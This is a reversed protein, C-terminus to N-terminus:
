LWLKISKDSSGSIIIRDDNFGKLNILCNVYDQHGYLIVDNNNNIKSKKDFNCICISKDLSASAITTLNKDWKMQVLSTVTKSHVDISRICEKMELEWLKITNDRSGSALICKDDFKTKLQILSYVCDTHGFLSKICDSTELNWIYIIKDHGGSAITTQNKEWKIHVICSVIDEHKKFINIVTEEEINWIRICTDRAGNALIIVDEDNNIQTLCTIWGCERFLTKICNGTLLDWIEIKGQSSGSAIICSYNQSKLQALCLIADKDTYLIMLCEYYDLSWLRITGDNSGSAFTYSYKKTNNVQILCTVSDLHGNLTKFVSYNEPFNTPLKRNKILFKSNFDLRNDLISKNMLLIKINDDEEILNNWLNIYHLTENM